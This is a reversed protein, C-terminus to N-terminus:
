ENKNESFYFMLTFWGSQLILNVRLVFRQAHLGRRISEVSCVVASWDPILIRGMDPVCRQHGASRRVPVRSTPSSGSIIGRRSHLLFGPSHNTVGRTNSMVSNVSLCSGGVGM